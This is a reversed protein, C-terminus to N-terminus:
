EGARGVYVLAKVFREGEIVVVEANFPVDIVDELSATRVKQRAADIAQENTM